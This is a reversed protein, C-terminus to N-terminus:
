RKLWSMDDLWGNKYAVRYAQLSKKRFESRTTYKRAEDFTNDPNWKKNKPEPRRLWTMESLWGNVRATYYASPSNTEFESKSKFKSAEVFTDHKNWRQRVQVLWTMRNLLGNRLAFKYGGRCKTFFEKRTSYKKSEIIVSDVTWKKRLTGISGSMLGTKAKNLINYGKSKYYNVYYDEKILAEDVSINCEVYVPNPVIKGASSFYRYVPSMRRNESTNYECSSHEYHRRVPDVTLGVYVTKNTEDIYVYVFHRNSVFPTQGRKLWTMKPMLNMDLAKQYASSSGKSFDSVTTYKKSERIITEETWYNASKKLPKLWTMGVLLGRSLAKGYTYPSKSAFESRSRYKRSEEIVM